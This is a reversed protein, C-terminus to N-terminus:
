GEAVSEQRGSERQHLFRGFCLSFPLKRASYLDTQAYYPPDFSFGCNYARGIQTRVFEVARAHQEPAREPRPLYLGFRFRASHYVEISRRKLPKIM